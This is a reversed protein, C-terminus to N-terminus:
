AKSTSIVKEIDTMCEYSQESCHKNTSRM